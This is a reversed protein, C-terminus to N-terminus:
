RGRKTDWEVHIHDSELLVEYEYPLRMRLWNTLSEFDPKLSGVIGFDWAMSLGHFTFVTGDKGHKGNDIANVTVARGFFKSWENATELLLSTRHNFYDIKVYPDASGPLGRFILM